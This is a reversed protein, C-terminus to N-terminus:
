QKDEDQPKPAQEAGFKSKRKMKSQQVKEMLEKARADSDRATDTDRVDSGRDQTIRMEMPQLLKPDLHKVNPNVDEPKIDGEYPNEEKREPGLTGEFQVHTGKALQPPPTTIAPRSPHGVGIVKGHEDLIVKEGTPSSVVLPKVPSTISSKVESSPAVPSTTPIKRAFFRRTVPPKADSTKEATEKQSPASPSPLSLPTTGGEEEKEPLEKPAKKSESELFRRGLKRGLPTLVFVTMGAKTIGPVIMKAKTLAFLLGLLEEDNIHVVQKIGDLSHPKSALVQLIRYAHEGAITPTPREVHEDVKVFEADTAGDKSVNSAAIEEVIIGQPTIKLSWPRQADLVMKGSSPHSTVPSTTGIKSPFNVEEVFKTRDPDTMRYTGYATAESSEDWEAPVAALGDLYGQPAKPPILFSEISPPVATAESSRKQEARRRRAFLIMLVAVVAAIVVLLALLGIWWPFAQTGSGGTKGGPLAPLVQVKVVTSHVATGKADTAWLQYTYNGPHSLVQSLSASNGLSTENTGNLSWTYTYPTYGGSASGSLTVSGGGHILTRNATLSVSPPLPVVAITYGANASHGASDNVFVRVSFDGPSVPTCSMTSANQSACGPPLGTYVYSLAGVGGTVVVSLTISSGLPDFTPDITFSSIQPGGAVQTVMLSTSKTASHSAQDTVTVTVNYHYISASTPRCALISLNASTCGPPLGTYSYTLVGTGGSATVTFNTWSDVVISAPNATFASISPSSSGATIAIIATALKSTGNLSANVTLAVVGAKSGATFTTSLGTSPNLSGLSNNLSWTYTIGSSPCSGPSCAPTATFGHTGGAQVTVATINITVGTLIPVVTSTITVTVPGGMKTVGNLTANVFLDVSGANSGATFTTSSSTPTNLTGLSSRNLTWSYSIGSPCIPTCTPTAVFPSTTGGTTVIATAPTASVGNLIPISKTITISVPLSHNTVGNLTANVFLSLNGTNSGAVFTTSMSNPSGLTGLGPNTLSWSYTVGTPCASTCAPTATFPSTTGNPPVSATTPSVDVSLLATTSVISLTGQGSDGVYVYGNSSDYSVYEPQSGVAMTSTVNDSIDSITSLSSSNGNAVFIEGNYSDYAIGTPTGITQINAVVTNSTDSIASVYDVPCGSLTTCGGVLIDGKGSDYAATMPFISLPTTAVVKNTSDSIVSVNNSGDNAVFVEGKAQDYTASMPSTGVNINAVVTNNKDSIVSVNNSGENAVFIEGRGNDYTAGQPTTGVPITAVVSDTGDNIVSLSNSNYNAVFIEGKSGDYVEGYPQSGVTINVIAQNTGDNVVRVCNCDFDTVFVDNKGTDVVTGFPKTGVPLNAVVKDTADSVVSVNDSNANAVFVEGKGSDYTLGEPYPGLPVTATVKYLTDSVVSLNNSARNTVLIEQKGSDYTLGFPTLGVPITVDVGWTNKNVAKVTNPGWVAVFIEARQSDCVLYGLGTGSLPFSGTLTNSGDNIVSVNVSLENSVFVEDDAKDWTAGLPYSGVAISAVVHNSSDNIISVNNSGTNAVIVESKTSDYAMGHPSSGVPVTAVVTDTGDSIVSVSNSGTNAVFVEGKGSDYVVNQPSTGVPVTAVLKDTGDNVISVSKSGTDAVFVEGNASDYAVDQPASGRCDTPLANGVYLTNTCLDLTDGVYPSGPKLVTMRTTLTATDAITDNVHAQVNFDGTAKPTCPLTSTNATSCGPPLGAYWYSYPPAGGSATVSLTTSSRLIFASPTAIFSTISIPPYIVMLSASKSATNMNNDVVNVTISFSGVATPICSDSWTATLSVESGTPCGSPDGGYTYAYPATGGSVTVNFYVTNGKDVPNPLATFSVVSMALAAPTQGGVSGQIAAASPSVLFIIAFSVALVLTIADHRHMYISWKDQLAGGV